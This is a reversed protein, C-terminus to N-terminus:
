GYGSLGAWHIRFPNVLSRGIAVGVGFVCKDGVFGEVEGLYEASHLLVLVAEFGLEEL